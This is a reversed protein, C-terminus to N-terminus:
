ATFWTNVANQTQKRAREHGRFHIELVYGPQGSHGFTETSIRGAVSVRFLRTGPQFEPFDMARVWLAYRGPQPINVATAAPLKGADGQYVLVGKGSYKQPSMAMQWSGPFQFDEAEVGVTAAYGAQACLLLCAGLELCPVCAAGRWRLTSLM